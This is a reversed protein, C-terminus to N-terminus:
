YWGLGSEFGSVLWDESPVVGVAARNGGRVHVCGAVNWARYYVDHTGCNLPSEGWLGSVVLQLIPAFDADGNAAAAVVEEAGDGDVAAGDGVVFGFAGKARAAGWGM